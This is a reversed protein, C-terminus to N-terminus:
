DAITTSWEQYLRWFDAESFMGPRLSGDLGSREVLSVITERGIKKKGLISLAGILKKRRQSFLLQVFSSFDPGPSGKIEPHSAPHISVAASNVGPVPRFCRRKIKLVKAAHARCRLFVSLAGYDKSGPEAALRRAFEEQLTLLMSRFHSANELLKLVIPTSLHYPLNSVVAAGAAVLHPLDTRLFDDQRLMLRGQRIEGAFRLRLHDCLKGDIEVAAVRAGQRLLQRTLMGKGPGIELVDEGPQVGSLEVLRRAVRDSTLFIQSHKRKVKRM